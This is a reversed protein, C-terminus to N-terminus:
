DQSHAPAQDLLASVAHRLAAVAQARSVGPFDALFDDLREGAQLHDFLTRVPVRTGRFVPAGSMIRADRHIVLDPHM